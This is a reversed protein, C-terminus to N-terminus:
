SREELFDALGIPTFFLYAHPGFRVMVENKVLGAEGEALRNKAIFTGNRSGADTLLWGADTKTFFAHYKSVGAFPLVIDNNATRGVGIREAFAGGPRKVVFHIGGEDTVKSSPGFVGSAEITSRMLPGSLPKRLLEDQAASTGPPLEVLAPGPTRKVLVERGLRRLDDVQGRVTHV